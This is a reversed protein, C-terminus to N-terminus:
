SSISKPLDTLSVADDSNLRRATAGMNLVTPNLGYRHHAVVTYTETGGDTKTNVNGKDAIEATGAVSEGQEPQVVFWHRRGPRRDDQSEMSRRWISKPEGLTHWTKLERAQTVEGVHLLAQEAHMGSLCVGGIREKEVCLVKKGLQSVSQPLRRGTRRRHRDRRPTRWQTLDEM